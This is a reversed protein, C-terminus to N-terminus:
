NGLMLDHHLRDQLAVADLRGLHHARMDGQEALTERVQQMEQAGRAIMPESLKGFIAEARAIPTGRLRRDSKASATRASCRVLAAKVNQSQRWLYDSGTSRSGWPQFFTHALAGIQLLSQRPISLSHRGFIM